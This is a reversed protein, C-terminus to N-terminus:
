TPFKGQFKKTIAWFLKLGSFLRQTYICTNRFLIPFVCFFYVLFFSVLHKLFVSFIFPSSLQLSRQHRIKLISTPSLTYRSGFIFCTDQPTLHVRVYIFYFHFIKYLHLDLSTQIEFFTLLVMYQLLGRRFKIPKCCIHM